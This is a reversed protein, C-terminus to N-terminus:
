SMKQTNAGPDEWIDDRYRESIATIPGALVDDRADRGLRMIIMRREHTVSTAPKVRYTALAGSQLSEMSFILMEGVDLPGNQSADSIWEDM